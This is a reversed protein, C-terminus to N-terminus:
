KKTQYILYMITVASTTIAFIDKITGGIDVGKSEPEPQKKLVAITSGEPVRPNSRLFGFNVRQSEGSPKSLVAYSASDTVGGAREVYDGVNDGDIFTLLGAKNVEGFV